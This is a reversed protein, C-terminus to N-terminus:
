AAPARRQTDLKRERFLLFLPLGLSVGVLLTSLTYVWLSQMRQRRGERFIFVLLVLGSIIVDTGFFASVNTQFLQRVLLPLDLGHEALFRALYSLPLAAGLLAGTLYLWQM